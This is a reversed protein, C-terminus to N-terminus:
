VLTSDKAAAKRAMASRMERTIVNWPKGQERLLGSDEALTRHTRALGQSGRQCERQFERSGPSGVSSLDSSSASGPRSKREPFTPFSFERHIGGLPASTETNSGCCPWSDNEHPAQPPESRSRQPIRSIQSARLLAHLASLLLLLIGCTLICASAIGARLELQLLTFLALAAL